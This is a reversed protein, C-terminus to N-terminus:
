GLECKFIRVRNKLVRLHLLNAGELAEDAIVAGV